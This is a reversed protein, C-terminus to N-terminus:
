KTEEPLLRVAVRRGIWAEPVVIVSDYGQDFYVQEVVGVVEADPQQRRNWEEIQDDHVECEDHLSGYWCGDNHYLYHWPKHYQWNKSGCWPCPLLKLTESTMAKGGQQDKAHCSETPVAPQAPAPAVPVCSSAECDEEFAPCAWNKEHPKRHSCLDDDCRDALPCIHMESM